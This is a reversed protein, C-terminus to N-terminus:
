FSKQRGRLIIANSVEVLFFENAIALAVAAIAVRFASAAIPDVGRAMLPRSLVIGGAQDAAALFGLLLGVTLIRADGGLPKFVIAKARPRGFDRSRNHSPYM